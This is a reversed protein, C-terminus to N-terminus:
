IYMTFACFVCKVDLCKANISNADVFSGRVILGAYLMGRINGVAFSTITFLFVCYSEFNKTKKKKEIWNPASPDECHRIRSSVAPALM